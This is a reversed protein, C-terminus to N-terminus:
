PKAELLREILAIDEPVSRGAARREAAYDRAMRVLEPTTREGLDRIREVPIESFVAKMVMQNFAPEPLHRAPYPNDCALAAFVGLANSRAAETALHVFREPGPLLALVRVLTEQEGLEGTRFLHEVWAVQEEPELAILAALLLGARGLDRMRLPGVEAIPLPLEDREIRDDGLRRGARAFAVRLKTLEPPDGLQRSAEELWRGAEPGGHAALVARLAVSPEDNSFVGSV